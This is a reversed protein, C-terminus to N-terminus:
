AYVDLPEHRPAISVAVPVGVAQTLADILEGAGKDAAEFAAMGVSVQLRLGGSALVFHMDMSGMTPADYSISLTHVAGEGDGRGGGASREKVVVAGGGPLPTTPPPALTAAHEQLGLVVKDPSLERVQLRIEQGVALGKPLEAELMVGALSITGRGSPDLSAVRAMLERGVALKLDPVLVARLLQLDVALAEM